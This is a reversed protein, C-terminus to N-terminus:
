LNKTEFEKAAVLVEDSNAVSSLNIWQLVVVHHSNGITWTGNVLLVASGPVLASWTVIEGNM